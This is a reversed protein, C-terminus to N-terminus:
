VFKEVCLAVKLIFSTCALAIPFPLCQFMLGKVQWLEIVYKITYFCYQINNALVNGLVQFGLPKPGFYSFPQRWGCSSILDKISARKHTQDHNPDAQPHGTLPSELAAGVRYFGAPHPLLGIAAKNIKQSQRLAKQKSTEASRHQGVTFEEGGGM